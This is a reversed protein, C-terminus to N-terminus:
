KYGLCIALTEIFMFTERERKIEKLNENMWNEGSAPQVHRFGCLVLILSSKKTEGGDRIWEVGV